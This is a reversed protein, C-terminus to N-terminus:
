ATRKFINVTLLTKDVNVTLGTESGFKVASGGSQFTHGGICFTTVERGILGYEGEDNKMKIQQNNTVVKSSSIDTILSSGVKEWTSGKILATM